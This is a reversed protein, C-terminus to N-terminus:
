KAEEKKNGCKAPNNRRRVKIHKIMERDTNNIENLKRSLSNFKTVNHSLNTLINQIDDLVSEM